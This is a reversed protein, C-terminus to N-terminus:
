KYQGIKDAYTSFAGRYNTILEGFAIEPFEGSAVGQKFHHIYASFGSDKIDKQGNHGAIGVYCSDGVRTLTKKLEELTGNQAEDIIVGANQLTRGRLFTHPVVKFEGQILVNCMDEFYNSDSLQQPSVGAEVLAELFPIAYEKIKDALGGPLFGISKEQVPFVVYYITGIHNKDQLAKMAQTLVTTKGSGAVADLIVRKKKFLKIVMDEQQRDLKKILKFEKETLKGLDLPEKHSM